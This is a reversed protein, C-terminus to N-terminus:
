RRRPPIPPRCGEPFGNRRWESKDSFVVCNLVIREARSGDAVVVSAPLLSFPIRFTSEKHARIKVLNFYLSSSIKEQTAPNISTYEWGIARVTRSGSNALKMELEFRSVNRIDAPGSDRPGIPGDYSPAPEYVLKVGSKDIWKYSLIRVEM